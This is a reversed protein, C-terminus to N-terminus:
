EEVIVLGADLYKNLREEGLVRAQRINYMISPLVLAPLLALSMLARKPFGNLTLGIPGTIAVTWYFGKKITVKTGDVKDFLTIYSVEQTKM